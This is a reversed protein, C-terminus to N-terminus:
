VSKRALWRSFYRTGLTLVTLVLLSWFATTDQAFATALLGMPVVGVGALVLGIIVWFVGWYKLTVIFGILWATLGYLFSGVYMIGAAAPRTRPFVAMPLLVVLTFAAFPFVLAVLLPLFLAGIFASGKIILVLLLGVILLTAALVLFGMFPSVKVVRANGRFESSIIEGELAEPKPSNPNSATNM